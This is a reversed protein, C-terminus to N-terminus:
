VRLRDSDDSAGNRLYPSKFNELIAALRWRPNPAVPFLAMRDATVSFEVRPDLAFDIPCGRGFMHGYSIKWSPPWGGDQIQDLLFYTWEIRRRRFGWRPDVRGRFGWGLILCLTLGVDREPYIAIQFKGLHRGAAMKTKTGGSAPGNSGVDWFGGGLIM